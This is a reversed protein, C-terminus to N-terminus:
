KVIVTVEAKESKDGLGEILSSFGYDSKEETKLLETETVPFAEFLKENGDLKVSVYIRSDDYLKAKDLIGYVKLAGSDNRVNPSKEITTFPNTRQAANSSLM